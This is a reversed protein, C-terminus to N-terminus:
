SPLMANDRDHGFGVNDHSDLNYDGGCAPVLSPQPHPNDVTSKVALPPVGSHAASFRARTPVQFFRAASKSYTTLQRRKRPSGLDARSHHPSGVVPGDFEPPRASRARRPRPAIHVTSARAAPIPDHKPNRNPRGAAAGASITARSPRCNGGRGNGPALGIARRGTRPGVPAARRHRSSAWGRVSGAHAPRVRTEGARGAM